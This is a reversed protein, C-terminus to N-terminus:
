KENSLIEGKRYLLSDIASCAKEDSKALVHSYIDLTTSVKAHGLRKSVTLIDVGESILLSAQTHRFMHPHIPPLGHRKSFKALWDTPSDPHMPSGNEATLIYDSPTIKLASFTEAQEAQWQRLLEMVTASVTVYRNEGTKLTTSIAGTEATYVRNERLYLRDNEWDVCNWRLGLIEGRRAGTAILLNTMVQWKIPEKRLANLIAQLEEVEFAKMEHKPVKPLTARQATNSPILQEKVAQSLISSIVRHHELITKASLGTGTKKNQGPEALKAYFRNLHDPRINQIKMPGIEANIRRLMDKYRVATKAKLGNREKLKIVYAAYQEFTLKETSINGLRCNEEFLAAQRDLEKEIQRKTMGPTPKWTMIYDKLRKGSSDRGRFVRIQYSIINGNKDRRSSINAM